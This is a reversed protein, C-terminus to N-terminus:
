SPMLGPGAGGGCRSRWTKQFLAGVQEYDAGPGVARRGGRVGLHTPHVMDQQALWHFEPPSVHRIVHQQARTGFPM